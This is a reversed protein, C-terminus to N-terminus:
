WRASIRFDARLSDDDQLVKDLPHGLDLSYSYRKALQGNLGVGVSSISASTPYDGRM